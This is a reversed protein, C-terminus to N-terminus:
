STTRPPNSAVVTELTKVLGLHSANTMIGAVTVLLGQHQPQAMGPFFWLQSFTSLGYDM